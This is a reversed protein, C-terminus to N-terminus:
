VNRGGKQFEAIRAQLQELTLGFRKAIKELGKDSFSLYPVAKLFSLIKKDKDSEPFLSKNLNSNHSAGM